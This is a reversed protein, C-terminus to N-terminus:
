CIRGFRLEHLLKRTTANLREGNTSTDHGGPMRMLFRDKFHDMRHTELQLDNEIFVRDHNQRRADVLAGAQANGQILKSKRRVVNNANSIGFVIVGKQAQALAAYGNAISNRGELLPGVPRSSM